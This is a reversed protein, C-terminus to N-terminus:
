TEKIPIYTTVGAESHAIVSKLRRLATLSAGISAHAADWEHKSAFHERKPWVYADNLTQEIQNLDLRIQETLAM